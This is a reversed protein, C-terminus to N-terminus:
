LAQGRREPCRAQIGQREIAPLLPEFKGVSRAKVRSVKREFRVVRRDGGLDAFEEAPAPGLLAPARLYGSLTTLMLVHARSPRRGPPGGIGQRLKGNESVAGGAWSGIGCSVTSGPRAGSRIPEAWLWILERVETRIGPRGSRRRSKWAWYRRFSQRHWGVVTEPRVQLSHRWDTWLRSLVVWFIRDTALERRTRVSVTLTGVLIGLWRVM